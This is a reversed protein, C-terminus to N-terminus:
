VVERKETPRVAPTGFQKNTQLRAEHLMGYIEQKNQAQHSDMCREVSTGKNTMIISAEPYAKLIKSVVITPAGVSCAVHLPYWGRRDSGRCSTPRKDVLISVIQEEAGNSLSYHLPLRGLSDPILSGDPYHDMLLNVIRVNANKRCAIHIPLRQYASEKVRVSDPYAAVLAVIVEFPATANAVAEHIPLVEATKIGDFFGPRGSWRKCENPSTRCLGIVRDWNENNIFQSLDSPM